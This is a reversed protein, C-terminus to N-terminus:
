PHEGHGTEHADNAESATGAPSHGIREPLAMLIPGMRPLGLNPLSIRNGTYIFRLCHAVAEPAFSMYVVVPTGDLNPPPLNDRFWDSEPVVINRHVRFFMKGTRVVVDAGLPCKWLYETARPAAAEFIHRSTSSTNSSPSASEVVPEDPAKYENTQSECPSLSSARSIEPSHTKALSWPARPKPLPPFVDALPKPTHTTTSTWPNSKPPSAPRFNIPAETDSKRSPSKM